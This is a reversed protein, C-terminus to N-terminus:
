KVCQHEKLTPMVMDPTHEWIIKGQEKDHKHVVGHM